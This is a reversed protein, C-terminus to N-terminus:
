ERVGGKGFPLIRTQGKFGDHQPFGHTKAISAATDPDLKYTNVSEEVSIYGNKLDEEVTAQDRESVPGYGGGGPTMQVIRASRKLRLDAFKTPSPSHPKFETVESYENGDASFLLFTRLGEEGGFIGPAPFKRRNAHAGVVASPGQLEYERILGMGGRHKGAGGSDTRLQYRITRLPFETEIVESSYNKATTGCYTITTNEGDASRRGGWGASEWLLQTYNRGRREDYGGLTLISVTEGGSAAVRDPIAQSMAKVIASAVINITETNGGSLPAPWVANILKGPPIIFHLPRLAGENFPITHDVLNLIANISGSVGVSYPGNVPGAAQPDCERYDFILDEDCVKVKVRVHYPVDTMGDDDIAAVGEYVGNPIISIEHRMRRESYNKLAERYELYQSLGHRDILQQLRKEATVLSGYMAMFDGYTKEPARVNALILRFTGSVPKDAEFLKIATVLLGEQFIETADGPFSGPTKGGVDAHHAINAAYGVLDNGYFLPRILCFEPLHPSGRYVDNHIIVDGPNIGEEVMESVVTRVGLNMSGLQSPNGQFQAVLELEADFLACTFDNGEYFIPSYATRIMTKGMEKSISILAGKMVELM